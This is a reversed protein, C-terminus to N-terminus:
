TPDLGVPLPVRRDHSDLVWQETAPDSKYPVTNLVGMALSSIAVRHTAAAALIKEQHAEDFLPLTTVNEGLRGFDVQVGDLGIRAALEFAGPSCTQRLTWDCAFIQFGRAADAARARRLLAAAAALGFSHKVFLRRPIRQM